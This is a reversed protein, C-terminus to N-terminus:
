QIKRKLKVLTTLARYKIKNFPLDYAQTVKVINKTFKLKFQTVNALSPYNKGAIGMFDYVKNGRLKMDKIIEFHLLYPAYTNRAIDNSGGYYYMSRNMYETTIAWAVVKNHHYACYLRANEGLEDLMNLYLSKKHVGFGGRKSTETLIDYCNDSFFQSKADKIEQVEVKNKLARRIGQRGSQSMQAFIEEETKSLDIVVTEDYMTHEFPLNVSSVKQPLSLRVFLPDIDNVKQFQKKLTLCFKETVQKSPVSAFLPGHKLWIWSRSNNEYLTASFLAVLKEQEDTCIFSGLFKRGAISDDFKGWVPSQEIPVGQPSLDKSYKDFDASSIKTTNFIANM